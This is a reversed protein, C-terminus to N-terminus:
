TSEALVLEVDDFLDQKSTVYPDRRGLRDELVQRGVSRGVADGRCNSM